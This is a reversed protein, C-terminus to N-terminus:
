IHGRPLLWTVLMSLLSSILYGLLRCKFSSFNPNCHSNIVGALSTLWACLCTCLHLHQPSLLLLPGIPPFVKGLEGMELGAASHSRQTLSSVFWGKLLYETHTVRHSSTTKFSANPRSSSLFFFCFIPIAPQLHFHYIMTFYVLACALAASEGVHGDGFCDARELLVNWNNPSSCVSECSPLADTPSILFLCFSLLM